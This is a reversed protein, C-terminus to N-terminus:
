HWAAAGQGTMWGWGVIWIWGGALLSAAMLGDLRDLLGGHGPILRGSDKVGFRRKAGSELLDGLQSAVGLAMSALIGPLIPGRWLLAGFFGVLIAAALGGAAGSWTKGPSISPALKRGGFLRGAVYAGVDSSWVVFLLFLLIARGADPNLRLWGLALIALGTYVLGAVLAGPERRSMQIWEWCVGLGAVIVILTWAIGGYWV